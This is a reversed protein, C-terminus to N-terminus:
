VPNTPVHAVLTLFRFATRALKYVM